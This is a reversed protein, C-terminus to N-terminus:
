RPPNGVYSTLSQKWLIDCKSYHLIVKERKSEIRSEVVDQGGIESYMETQLPVLNLNEKKKM